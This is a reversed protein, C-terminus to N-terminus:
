SVSMEKEKDQAIFNIQQTAQQINDQMEKQLQRSDNESIEGDAEGKKILKMEKERISRVAIRADEAKQHIVKVFENRREETLPPVILRIIQGDNIPQLGLSSQQIAHEIPKLVQPDWPQIILSQPEPATISALEKLTSKANYAEILLNEVLAPTARGSRISTLEQRFHDIPKKLQQEDM